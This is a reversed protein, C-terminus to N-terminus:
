YDSDAYGFEVNYPQTSEDDYRDEWQSRPRLEQGSMNYIRGCDCDIGHGNDYELYVTRGCACKGHAPNRVERSWDAIGNYVVKGDAKAAETTAFMYNSDAGTNPFRNGQSDCRFAFGSGPDNRYSYSLRYENITEWDAPKINTLM